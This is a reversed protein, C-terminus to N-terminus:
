ICTKTTGWCVRCMNPYQRGLCDQVQCEVREGNLWLEIADCSNTCSQSIKLIDNDMIQALEKASLTRIWELNTM